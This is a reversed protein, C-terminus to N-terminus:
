EGRCGETAGKCGTWYRGNVAFDFVVWDVGTPLDQCRCREWYNRRYIPEVDGRTIAKMTVEAADGGYFEDYVRKTIGLKTMGGPDSSHNVYGDEIYDNGLTVRKKGSM